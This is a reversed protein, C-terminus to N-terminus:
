KHRNPSEMKLATRENTLKHHAQKIHLMQVCTSMFMQCIKAYDNLVHQCLCKAYRLVIMQCMNVYVNPM